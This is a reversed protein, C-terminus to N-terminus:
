GPSVIGILNAVGFPIPFIDDCAHVNVPRCEDLSRTLHRVVFVKHPRVIPRDQVGTTAASSVFPIPFLAAYAAFKISLSVMGTVAFPMPPLATGIVALSM